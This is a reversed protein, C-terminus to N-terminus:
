DGYYQVDRVDPIEAASAAKVTVRDYNESHDPVARYRPLVAQPLFATRQRRDRVARRATAARLVTTGRRAATEPRITIRATTPPIIEAQIQHRALHRIQLRPVRTTM